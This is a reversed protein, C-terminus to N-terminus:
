SFTVTAPDTKEVLLDGTDWDYIAFSLTFSEIKEPREEEDVSLISVSRKGAPTAASIGLNAKKGNVASEAVSLDIYKDSENVVLLNIYPGFFESESLGDLAIVKVGDVDYLVTGDEKYTYKGGDYASTKVTVPDTVFLEEYTEADQVTICFEFEAYTDVGLLEPKTEDFVAPFPETKGPEIDYSYNSDTMVGNISCESLGFTITKKTNNTVDILLVRDLEMMDNKFKDYGKLVATVGKEDLITQEEVTVEGGPKSDASNGCATLVAFCLLIAPLLALTSKITKKM